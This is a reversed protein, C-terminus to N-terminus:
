AAGGDGQLRSYAWRVAEIREATWRLDNLDDTRDKM